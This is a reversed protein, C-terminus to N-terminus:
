WSYHQRQTTVPRNPLHVWPKRADEKAKREKYERILTRQEKLVLNLNTPISWKPIHARRAPYVFGAFVKRGNNVWAQEIYLKNPDTITVWKGDKLQIKEPKFKEDAPEKIGMGAVVAAEDKAADLTIGIDRAYKKKSFRMQIMADDVTRGAIQRALKVHKKPALRWVPGRYTLTRETRALREAKTERGEPDLARSVYRTVMKRTFRMDGRPDPDTSRCMAEYTRVLGPITGPKRTDPASQQGSSTAEAATNTAEVDDKEDFISQSGLKTRGLRQQITVANARDAAEKDQQRKLADQISQSTFETTKEPSSTRRLFNKKGFFSRLQQQCSIPRATCAAALARRTPLHLSM